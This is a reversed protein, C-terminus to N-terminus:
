LVYEQTWFLIIREAEEQGFYDLIEARGPESSAKHALNALSVTLDSLLNVSHNALPPSIACYPLLTQTTVTGLVNPHAQAQRQRSSADAQLFSQHFKLLTAPLEEARQLPVVPISYKDMLRCRQM